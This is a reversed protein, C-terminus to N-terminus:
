VKQLTQDRADRCRCSFSGHPHRDSTAMVSCMAGTWQKHHAHLSRMMHMVVLSSVHVLLQSRFPIPSLLMDNLKWYYQVPSFCTSALTTFYIESVSVIHDTCSNVKPRVPARPAESITARDYFRKLASTSYQREKGFGLLLFPQHDSLHYGFLPEFLKDALNAERRLRALPFARFLIHM